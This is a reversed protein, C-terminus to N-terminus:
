KEGFGLSLGLATGLIPVFVIDLPVTAPLLLYYAPNPKREKGEELHPLVGSIKNGQAAHIAMMTCSTQSVCVFAVVGCVVVAKRLNM